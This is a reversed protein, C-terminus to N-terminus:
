CTQRIFSPSSCWGGQLAGFVAGGSFTSNIAGIIPSTSDTNFYELFNRSAIVDTMVGSDYGFLFSSNRTKLLAAEISSVLSSVRDRRLVCAHYQLPAGDRTQTGKQAGLLARTFTSPTVPKQRRNSSTRNM